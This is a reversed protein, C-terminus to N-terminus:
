RKHLGSCRKSLEELICWSNSTFGTPKLAPMSEGNPGHTTLGYECQDARVWQVGPIALFKVMEPPDWSDAFAPHEFLFYRGETMQLKNIEICFQIHVRAAERDVRFQELWAPDDAHLYLNLATLRSFKTCPPSCIVMHPKDTNVKKELKARLEPKM